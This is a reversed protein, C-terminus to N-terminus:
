TAPGDTGSAHQSSAWAHVSASDTNSYTGNTVGVDRTNDSADTLAEGEALATPTEALHATEETGPAEIAIEDDNVRAALATMPVLSLVMVLALLLSGLRKGTKKM